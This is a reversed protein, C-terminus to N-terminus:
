PRSSDGAVARAREHHLEDLAGVSARACRLAAGSGSSSASGIARWIASASSAACSRPMTWRSRLGAFMLSRASPATFTSSKPRALASSARAGALSRRRQRMVRRREGGAAVAAPRSGRCRRRCSGPAPARCLRRCARRCRPTRRRARRSASRARPQEGALGHGVDSAATSVRSGDVPRAAPRCAAPAEASSRRQRSRSGFCRRRSM